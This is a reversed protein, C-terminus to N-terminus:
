PAPFLSVADTETPSGSAWGDIWRGDRWLFSVGLTVVGALRQGGEYCDCRYVLRYVMQGEVSWAPEPETYRCSVGELSSRSLLLLAEAREVGQTGLRSLEAQVEERDTRGPYRLEESGVGRTASLGSRPGAPLPWRARAAARLAAVRSDPAAPPPRLGGALIVLVLAIAVAGVGGATSAGIRLAREHQPRAADRAARLAFWLALTGAGAAAVM